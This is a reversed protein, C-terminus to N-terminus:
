NVPEDQTETDTGSQPESLTALMAAFQAPRFREDDNLTDAIRGLQEELWPNDIEIVLM